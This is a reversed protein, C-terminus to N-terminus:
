LYGAMIELCVDGVEEFLFSQGPSRRNPNVEIFVIQFEHVVADINKVEFDVFSLPLAYGQVFPHVFGFFIHDRVIGNLSDSASPDDDSIIM